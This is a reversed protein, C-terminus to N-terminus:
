VLPEMNCNSIAFVRGASYRLLGRATQQRQGQWERLQTRTDVATQRISGSGSAATRCSLKKASSRYRLKM